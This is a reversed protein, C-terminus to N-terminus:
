AIWRRIRNKIERYLVPRGTMLFQQIVEAVQPTRLYGYSKHPNKVNEYTYDNSVVFDVPGVGYSNEKYDDNLNYNLAIKDHLDSFNYWANRINEPTPVKKEEQISKHQESLIKKMIVPLGLPSGMTIFTHIPLDSLVQTLVDYAVISGMSHAILLIDKNRHKQLTQAVEQRIADRAGIGSKSDVLCNQHYYIDLERFFKRIILDGISDIHFIKNDSFFIKDFIREILDLSKKRLESPPEVEGNPQHPAYPNEIYFPSNKDKVSLKLPKPYYFHAWYALDFRFFKQPHGIRSLGDYISRKWWARLLRRPPKNGLGHIGIIIKKKM